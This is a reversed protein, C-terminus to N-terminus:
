LSPGHPDPHLCSLVQGLRGFLVDSFVVGFFILALSYLM